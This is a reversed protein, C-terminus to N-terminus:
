KNANILARFDLDQTDMFGPPMAGEIKGKPSLSINKYISEGYKNSVFIIHVKDNSIEEEAIRRRLRTIFHDSHTEVLSSVGKEKCLFIFFDAMAAQISPHMHVDPDEVILLSGSKSICGQTIIPIIQSLGFGMHMLDVKIGKPTTIVVRYRKGSEKVINLDQALKLKECIWEKILDFNKNKETALKDLIYRTNEGDPLVFRTEVDLPYSRDLVPKVRLPAIYNVKNFIDKLTERTIKTIPYSISEGENNTFFVPFFNAFSYEDVKLGKITKEGYKIIYNGLRNRELEFNNLIYSVSTLGDQFHLKIYFKSVYFHDTKVNFIVEIELEEIALADHQFHDIETDKLEERTLRIAFKMEGPKKDHMLDILSNAYVYPGKLNLIENYSGELTQKLLLIAQILSSKGSSNIGALVTLNSLDVNAVHGISKFNDVSVFM